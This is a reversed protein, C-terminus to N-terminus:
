WTKRQAPDARGQEDFRVGERELVQRVTETRAPDDWRFRGSPRGDTTLIRWANVCGDGCSTVHNGLPQAATGVAAALDGYTTWSGPKLQPLLQHLADWDFPVHATGAPAVADALAVLDDGDATVWWATGRTGRDIGAAQTLIHRVLGTPTYSQGDAAWRLAQPSRGTWTAQGRSPDEAVWTALKIRVTEDVETTPRLTLPADDELAAATVLRAVASTARRRDQKARSVQQADVLRPAVTFDEVQAIPWLQSTTLVVGHDTRYAQYRILTVPNTDEALMETLWVCTATTTEPFSGAVLVIRPRRLVASGLPGGAHEELRARADAESVTQGTHRTLHRAYAHALTDPDFRSVMAAYKLAQMEVTASARDRKLEAVVLTGSGDLALIDLRDRPDAGAATTFWRDFEFTVIQIDDGLITPNALVWEQLHERERLGAEALNIPTAATAVTGSITFLQEDQM